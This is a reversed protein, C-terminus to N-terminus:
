ALRVHGHVLLRALRREFAALVASVRISAPNFSSGSSSFAASANRNAFRAIHCCRLGCSVIALFRPPVFVASMLVM